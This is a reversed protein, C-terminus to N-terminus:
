ADRERRVKHVRRHNSPSREESEEGTHQTTSPMARFRTPIGYETRQINTPEFTNLRKKVDQEEATARKKHLEVLRMKNLREIDNQTMEQAAYSHTSNDYTYLVDETDFEPTVSTIPRKEESEDNTVCYHPKDNGEDVEGCFACILPELEERETARSKNYDIKVAIIDEVTKNIVFLSGKESELSSEQASWENVYGEVMMGTRFFVKVYTGPNISRM